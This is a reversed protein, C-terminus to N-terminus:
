LKGVTDMVYNAYQKFDDLSLTTKSEDIINLPKGFVIKIKRKRSFFLALSIGYAGELKVPVIPKKTKYALYAVGGKAPQINGDITIRGEPFVCVNGGDNVIDIHYKMSKEYDKLGVFVPYSGWAKFFNGGYFFSRWGSNNYFGKSRSTYFIPSFRSFFPLSAPLVIPDLESTHNCAFIVNTNIGKLNELGVIELRVFFKLIIRTPIWILKQLFLPSYRYLKM